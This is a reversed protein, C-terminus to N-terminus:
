VRWVTTTGTKSFKCLSITPKTVTLVVPGFLVPKENEGEM